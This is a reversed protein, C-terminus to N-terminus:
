RAEARAVLEAGPLADRLERRSAIGLKPYINRLHWEVTRASIFLQAGIEPNTRGDGALRAIQEEQPTLQDRTEDARRRITEGTAVLERRAREAFGDMGNAMFMEHATHLQQRSDSRRRQRRLWEGYLLHARALAVHIRTRQLREISERHLREAEDGEALLARARAEVGLAWDTGSARAITAYEAMPAAAREPRGSRVAAEVLEPAVWTALGLEYPRAALREAATLAEEYRSLGNYLLASTWETVILWLGEGRRDVDPGSTEILRTAEAEDGAYAAMFLAAHPSLQSATADSVLRAEAALSRAAGVQGTYLVMTAREMLALPLLSLAGARRALTVQRETFEDWSADDGLARAVHNALWLWRLADEEALPEDRFAELARQLTPAGSAYGQTALVALGDLLLDTARPRRRGDDGWAAALVAEAVDRVGRGHALRGAFLAASFADLYTERALTADLPELRRAAQLLLPPADRGHSVTFTIQASLLEALARHLEDLPGAQAMALLHAAADEFGARHKSQAARLAREARRVPDPTLEAARQHFAAAAALGGRAQARSASRELEAALEEDVGAAAHARHWARRDPDTEPDTADALARHVAQRDHPSAARYVASRVLPHRFRVQTGLDLVGAATAPEAAQPEVGLRDAARWVLLPDGLPDAAAILLLRQTSPPLPAVRRRFSEEIRSSLGGADPRGFGGALDEHTVGRPLELLALPNGRTEAVIRDRVGPDLPGSSAAALLARAHVDSLGRVMQDPVGEFGALGTGDGADRAAFVMVVPEAALRRAVFALVQASARDLWQADDVVCVLPQEEAAESLLSLTALGVLFRDPASGERLGFATALAAAQPTPLASIRGLLTACLQHLGAFPLEMESEIGAARVVRCGSAAAVLHELLATKGIGAEGWLVLAGSRGSRSDALLRELVACEDRRGRLKAEPHSPM